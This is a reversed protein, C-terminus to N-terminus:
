YPLIKDPLKGVEYRVANVRAGRKQLLDLVITEALRMEAALASSLVAIHLTKNKVFKVTFKESLQPLEALFLKEAVTCVQAATFTGAM